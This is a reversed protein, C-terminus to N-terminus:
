AKEMEERTQAYLDKLEQNADRLINNLEELLKVREEPSYANEIEQLKKSLEEKTM